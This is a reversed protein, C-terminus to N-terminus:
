PHRVASGLATKASGTEDHRRFREQVLVLARTPFLHPVPEMLVAIGAAARTVFRQDVGYHIRGTYQPALFLFLLQQKFGAGVPFNDASIELPRRSHGLYRSGPVEAGVARQLHRLSGQTQRQHLRFHRMRQDLIDIRRFRLLHGTNELDHGMLVHFAFVCNGAQNSERGVLAVAPVPRNKALVLHELIPVGNGDNAGVGLGVGLRRGLHDLHIQLDQRRIHACRGGHGRIRDLNMGARRVDIVLLADDLARFRLRQHFFRRIGHFVIEIAAALRMQRDLRVAPIGVKIFFATQRDVGLTDANEQMMRHDTRAQADLRVLQTQHLIRGSAREAIFEARRHFRQQAHGAHRGAPRNRQHVRHVLVDGIGAFTRGSEDIELVAGVLVALDHRHFAVPHDVMARIGLETIQQGQPLGLENAGPIVDGIDPAFPLGNAGVMGPTRGEPGITRRLREQSRLNQDIFQRFLHSHIGEFEAVLVQVPRAGRRWVAAFRIHVAQNLHEVFQPRFILFCLFPAFFQGRWLFFTADAQGDADIAATQVARVAGFRRDFQRRVAHNEGIGPFVMTLAGIRAGHRYRM